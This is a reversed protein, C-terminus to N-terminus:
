VVVQLGLIYTGPVSCKVVRVTPRTNQFFLELPNKQPQFCIVWCVLVCVFWSAFKGIQAIKSAIEERANELGGGHDLGCQGNQIM